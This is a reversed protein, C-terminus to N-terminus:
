GKSVVVEDGRVAVQYSDLPAPPPGSLVEGNLNFMGNHCACWIQSLDSRYQVTCQLHACVANFARYEGSNLRILLGPRSGFRFVKGENPGLEDVKAAVVSTQAAETQVPPIVFRILPYIVSGLWALMGGGLLINVARRDRDVHDENQHEQDM